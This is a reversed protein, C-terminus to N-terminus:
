LSISPIKKGTRFNMLCSFKSKHAEQGLLKSKEVGCKIGQILARLIQLDRRGQHTVIGQLSTTECEVIKSKIKLASAKSKNEFCVKFTSEQVQQDLFANAVLLM